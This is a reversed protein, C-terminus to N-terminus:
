NRRKGSIRDMPQIVFHLADKGHMVVALVVLNPELLDELFAPDLASALRLRDKGPVARVVENVLHRNRGPLILRPCRSHEPVLRRESEKSIGVGEIRQMPLFPPVDQELDTPIDGRLLHQPLIVIEMDEPRNQCRSSNVVVFPNEHRPAPLDVGFDLPYGCPDVLRGPQLLSCPVGGLWLRGFGETGGPTKRGSGPLGKCVGFCPHLDGLTSNM